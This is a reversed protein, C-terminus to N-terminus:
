FKLEHAKKSKGFNCYNFCLENAFHQWIPCDDSCYRSFPALAYGSPPMSACAEVYNEDSSLM